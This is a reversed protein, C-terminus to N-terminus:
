YDDRWILPTEPPCGRSLSDRPGMLRQKSLCSAAGKAGSIEDIKWDVINYGNTNAYLLIAQKQVDIGFKDDKAQQETSVRVYGIANKFTQM